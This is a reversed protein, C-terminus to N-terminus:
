LPVLNEYMESTMERLYKVDFIVFKKLVIVPACIKQMQLDFKFNIQVTKKWFLLGTIGIVPVPLQDANWHV